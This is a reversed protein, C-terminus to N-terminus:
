GHRRVRAPSRSKSRLKRSEHIRRLAARRITEWPIAKVEGSELERVRRALEANWAKEIALNAYFPDNAPQLSDLLSKALTRRLSPPLDMAQEFLKHTARTMAGSVLGDDQLACRVIRACALPSSRRSERHRRRRM